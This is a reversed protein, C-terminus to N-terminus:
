KSTISERSFSSIESQGRGAGFPLRVTLERTMAIPKDPSYAIVTGGAQDTGRPPIAAIDHLPTRSSIFDNNLNPALPSGRNNFSYWWTTIQRTRLVFYTHSDPFFRRLLAIKRLISCIEWAPRCVGFHPHSGMIITPTAPLPAPPPWQRYARTGFRCPLTAPDPSFRQGQEKRHSGACHRHRHFPRGRNAFFPPVTYGSPISACPERDLLGNKAWGPLATHIVEGLRM